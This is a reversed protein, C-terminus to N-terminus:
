HCKVTFENGEEFAVSCNSFCCGYIAGRWMGKLIRM